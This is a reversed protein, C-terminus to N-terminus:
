RAPDFYEALLGAHGAVRAMLAANLEATRQTLSAM